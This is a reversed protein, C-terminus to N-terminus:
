WNSFNPIIKKKHWLSEWYLFLSTILILYNVSLCRLVGYTFSFHVVPKLLVLREEDPAIRVLGVFDSALSVCSVLSLYCVALLFAAHQCGILLPCLGSLYFPLSLPLFLFPFIFLNLLKIKKNNM